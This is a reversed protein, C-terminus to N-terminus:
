TRLFSEIDQFVSSVYIALIRMHEDNKMTKTVQERYDKIIIPAIIENQLDTATIDSIDLDREIEHRIKEYSVDGNKEDPLKYLEFKFNKETINFISIYVERSTSGIM